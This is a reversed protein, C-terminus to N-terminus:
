PNGQCKGSDTFILPPGIVPQGPKRQEPPSAAVAPPRLLLAGTRDGSCGSVSSCSRDPPTDRRTLSLGGAVGRLPRGSEEALAPRGGGRMAVSTLTSRISRTKPESPMLDKPFPIGPPINPQRQSSPTYADHMAQGLDSYFVTLVACRYQQPQIGQWLLVPVQTITAPRLQPTKLIIFAVLAIVPAAGTGRGCNGM